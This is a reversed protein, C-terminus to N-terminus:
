PSSRGPSAAVGYVARLAASGPRARKPRRATGQLDCALTANAGRTAYGCASLLGAM